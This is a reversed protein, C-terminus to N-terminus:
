HKSVFLATIYTILGLVSFWIDAIHTHTHSYIFEYYELLVIYKQFLIYEYKQWLIENNYLKTIFLILSM